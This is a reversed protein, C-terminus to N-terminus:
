RGICDFSLNVKPEQTVLLFVYSFSCADPVSYNYTARYLVVQEQDNRVVTVYNDRQCYSYDTEPNGSTSSFCLEGNTVFQYGNPRSTTHIVFTATTCLTYIEYQECSEPNHIITTEPQAQAAAPAQLTGISVLAIAALILLKRLRM